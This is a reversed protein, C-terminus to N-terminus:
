RARRVPLRASAGRWGAKAAAIRLRGSHKARLRLRARGGSGTVV